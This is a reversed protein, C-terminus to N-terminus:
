CLQFIATIPLKFLSFIMTLGSNLCVAVAKEWCLSLTLDPMTQRLLLSKSSKKFITSLYAHFLEPYIVGKLFELAPDCSNAAICFM